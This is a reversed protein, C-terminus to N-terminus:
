DQSLRLMVYNVCETILLLIHINDFTFIKHRPIHKIGEITYRRNVQEFVLEQLIDETRNGSEYSTTNSITVVQVQESTAIKLGKLIKTIDEHFGREMLQDHNYFVVLKLESTDVKDSEHAFRGPTCIIVDGQKIHKTHAAKDGHVRISYLGRRACLPQIERQLLDTHEHTACIIIVQPLHESELRQGPDNMHRGALLAIAIKKGEHPFSQIM